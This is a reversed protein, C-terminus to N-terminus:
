RLNFDGAENFLLKVPEKKVADPLKIFTHGKLTFAGKRNKFANLVPGALARTSFQNAVTLVQRDGADRIASTQGNVLPASDVFFEFDLKTFSLKAKSDNKLVIDFNVTLKMDISAPDIVKEPKKGSIIAEFMGLTKNPDVDKKGSKGLADTVESLTPKKVSFNAISVTPKLAPIQKKLTYKLTVNKPINQAMDKTIFGYGAMSPIPIVIVTDVVTMLYEKQSYDKVIGIIDTYKLTVTFMNSSEGNARIKLGKGSETELLQKGEILFKMKVADLRIDVPYPNKVAIDFLFTIDHLSISQIDFNKIFATPKPIDFSRGLSAVFIVFLFPLLKKM